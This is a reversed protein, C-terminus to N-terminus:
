SLCKACAFNDPDVDVGGKNLPCPVTPPGTERPLLRRGRLPSLKCLVLRVGATLYVCGVKWSRKLMHKAGERRWTRSRGSHVVERVIDGKTDSVPNMFIYWLVSSTVVYHDRSIRGGTSEMVNSILCSLSETEFHICRFAPSSPRRAKKQLTCEV